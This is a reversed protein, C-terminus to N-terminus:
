STRLAQLSHASASAPTFRQLLHQPGPSISYTVRFSIEERVWLLKDLLLYQRGWRTEKVPILTLELDWLLLSRRIVENPLLNLLSCLVNGLLKNRCSIQMWLGSRGITGSEVGLVGTGSSAFCKGREHSGLPPSLFFPLKGPCIIPVGFQPANRGPACPQM